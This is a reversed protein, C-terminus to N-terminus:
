ATAREIDEAIGKLIWFFGDRGERTLESTGTSIMDALFMVKDRANLLLEEREEELGVREQQGPFKITKERREENKKSM